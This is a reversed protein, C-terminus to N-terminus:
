IAKKLPGPRGDYGGQDLDVDDMWQYERKHQAARLAAETMKLECGRPPPDGHM